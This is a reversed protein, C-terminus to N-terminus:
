SLWITGVRDDLSGQWHAAEGKSGPQDKDDVGTKAESTKYNYSDRDNLQRQANQRPGRIRVVRHGGLQKEQREQRVGCRSTGDRVPLNIKRLTKM